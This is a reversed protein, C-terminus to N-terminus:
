SPTGLNLTRQPCSGKYNLQRRKIRLRTDCAQLGTTVHM